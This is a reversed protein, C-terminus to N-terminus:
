VTVGEKEKKTFNFLRQPDVDDDWGLRGHTLGYERLVCSIKSISPIQSVAEQEILYQRLASAGCARGVNYLHIRALLIIQDVRDCQDLILDHRASM